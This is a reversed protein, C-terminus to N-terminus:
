GKSAFVREIRNHASNEGVALVSSAFPPLGHKWLHKWPIKAVRASLILMHVVHVGSEWAATLYGSTGRQRLLYNFSEPLQFESPRRQWEAFARNLFGQDGQNYSILLPALRRLEDYM